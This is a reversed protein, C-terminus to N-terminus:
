GIHLFSKLRQGYKAHKFEVLSPCPHVPLVPWHRSFLSFNICESNETFLPVLARDKRGRRGNRIFFAKKTSEVIRIPM